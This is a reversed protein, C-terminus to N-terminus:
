KIYTFDFCMAVYWLGIWVYGTVQTAGCMRCHPLAYHRTLVKFSSDTLTYLSAGAVLLGLCASSRGCIFSLGFTPAQNVM